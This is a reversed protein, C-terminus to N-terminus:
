RRIMPLLMHNATTFTPRTLPDGLLVYTRLSDFGLTYPENPNEAVGAQYLMLLGNNVLTGMRQEGPRSRQLLSLFGNALHEHGFVVSSGASGWVAIAGGRSNIVFQEDLTEGRSNPTQFASSLCTMGLVVPLAGALDYPEDIGFLYNPSKDLETLAWRDQASHGTYIVLGYGLNLNDLVQKRAAAASRVRWPQNAVMETPRPDYYIQTAQLGTPLLTRSEDALQAFAGGGAPDPTVTGTLSDYEFDNDTVILARSRWLERRNNDYQLLKAVLTRLEGERKVPLRGLEMDPLWDSLPSDGDLQVFCTECAAETFRGRIAWQDVMALLPPILQVNNAGQETYDFPDLTGDGVLVVSSPVPNWTAATFRLFDRIAEPAIQGHNWGDYIQQVDIAQVTFGQARRHALLPELTTLFGQPAIYLVNAGTLNSISIPTHAAVQPTHLTTNGTVLFRQNAEADLTNTAILVREPLTPATINYIESGAPLNQLQYCRADAYSAFIAGTGAAFDLLVPRLYDIRNLLLRSLVATTQATITLQPNNQNLQFSKEWDAESAWRQTASSSGASVSLQHDGSTRASGVVTLTQPGNALPLTTPLSVAVTPSSQEGNSENSANLEFSFWHDGNQGAKLVDYVKPARWSGQELATTSIPNNCSTQNRTNMRPTPTGTETLWYTTTTNWRDPQNPAYFRIEGPRIDLAIPQNNHWLNLRSLDNFGPRAAALQQLTVRQVGPQNVILKWGLQTALPAPSPASALFPNQRNLQAVNTTTIPELNTFTASLQQVQELRGDRRYIPTLEAVVLMEGRMQSTRVIKLPTDPYADIPLAQLKTGAPALWPTSVIQNIQLDFAGPSPARLAIPQVPLRQPDVAFAQWGSGHLQAQTSTTSQLELNATQGHSELRWWLTEASQAYAPVGPGLLVVMLVILFLQTPRM